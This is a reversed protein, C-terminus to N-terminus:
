FPQGPGPTVVKHLPKKLCQQLRAQVNKFPAQMAKAANIEPNPDHTAKLKAVKVKWQGVLVKMDDKYDTYCPAHSTASGPLANDILDEDSMSANQAEFRKISDLIKDIASPM